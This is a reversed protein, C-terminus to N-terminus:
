YIARRMRTESLHLIKQLLWRMRSLLDEVRADIPKNVDLYM